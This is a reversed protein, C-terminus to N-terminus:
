PIGGVIQGNTIYGHWGCGGPLSLLLISPTTSLDDYGTGSVAWRTATGGNGHSGQVDTAGRGQFTVEVQHIGVGAAQIDDAESGTGPPVRAINDAFCKPCLFRLGQAAELSDVHVSYEQPGRVERTPCGRARWTEADGEIVSYTEVRAEYRIFQPALESLKVPAGCAM